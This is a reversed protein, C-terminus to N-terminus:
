EESMGASAGGDDVKSHESGSNHRGRLWDRALLGVGPIGLVILVVHVAACLGVFAAVFYVFFEVAKPYASLWWGLWIAAIVLVITILRVM